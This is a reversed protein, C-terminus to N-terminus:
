RWGGVLAALDYSALRNVFRDESRAAQPSWKDVDAGSAVTEGSTLFDSAVPVASPRSVRLHDDPSGGVM